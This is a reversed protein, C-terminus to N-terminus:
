LIGTEFASEGLIVVVVKFVMLLGRRLAAVDTGGSCLAIGCNAYPPGKPDGESSQSAGCMSGSSLVAICCRLSVGVNLLLSSAGEVTGLNGCFRLRSEDDCDTAHAVPLRKAFFRPLFFPVM